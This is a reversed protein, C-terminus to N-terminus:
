IYGAYYCELKRIVVLLYMIIRGTCLLIKDKALYQVTESTKRLCEESLYPPDVVVLGFSQQALRPPLSLPHNYDYFCFSDGYIEFRRDYELLVM